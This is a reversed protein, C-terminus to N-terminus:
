DTVLLAQAVRGLMIWQRYRETVRTPRRRGHASTGASAGSGSPSPSPRPRGGQRAAAGGTRTTNGARSSAEPVRRLHPGPRRAPSPLREILGPAHGAYPRPAPM